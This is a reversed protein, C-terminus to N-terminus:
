KLHDSAQKFSPSLKGGLIYVASVILVAVGAVMFAYEVATPAEEDKLFRRLKTLVLLSSLV